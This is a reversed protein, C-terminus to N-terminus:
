QTEGDLIGFPLNITRGIDTSFFHHFSVFWGVLIECIENFAIGRCLEYDFPNPLRM